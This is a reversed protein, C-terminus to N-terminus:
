ESPAPEVPEEVPPEEAPAQASALLSKIRAVRTQVEAADNEDDSLVYAELEDLQADLDALAESNKSVNYRVNDLSIALRDVRAKLLRFDHISPFHQRFYALLLSVM